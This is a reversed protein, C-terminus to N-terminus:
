RTLLLLVVVGVALILVIELPSLVRRLRAPLRELPSPCGETRCRLFEEEIQLEVALGVGTVALNGVFVTPTVEKTLGYARGLTAMLRWNQPSFTVEYAVVKLEPYAKELEALYARMVLCDPCTASWFYHLEVPSGWGGTALGLMSGLLVLWRM